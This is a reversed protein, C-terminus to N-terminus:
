MKVNSDMSTDTVYNDIVRRTNSSILAFKFFFFIRYHIITNLNLDALLMINRYFLKFEM